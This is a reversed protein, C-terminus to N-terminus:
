EESKGGKGGYLKKGAAQYREGADGEEDEDVGEEVSLDTIQISLSKNEGNEATEHSSVECVYGVAHITVPTEASPMEKIGLKELEETTLRIQLGYPYREMNETSATPEGSEEKQEEPTLMMDVMKDM